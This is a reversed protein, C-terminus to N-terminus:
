KTELEKIIMDVVQVPTLGVTDISVDAVKMYTPLRKELITATKRQKDDVNLLPRSEDDSTRAMIEEITATLHVLKSTQKLAEVNEPDIVAGGGCAIVLNDMSALDKAIKKEIERFTKEGDTAFIETIERGTREVIEDDMDVFRYGIREALLTGVTTKGVAMFGYLAINM